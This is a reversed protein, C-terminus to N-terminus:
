LASIAEEGEPSAELHEDALSAEGGQGHAGIEEEEIERFTALWPSVLAAAATVRESSKSM